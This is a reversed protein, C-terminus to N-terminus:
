LYVNWSFLMSFLMIIMNIKFFVMIFITNTLADIMTKGLSLYYIWLMVFCLIQCIGYCIITQKFQSSN